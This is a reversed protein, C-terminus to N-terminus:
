PLRCACRLACPCCGAAARAQLEDFDSGEGDDPAAEQPAEDDDDEEEDEDDGGGVDDEDGTTAGSDSGDDSRSVLDQPLL